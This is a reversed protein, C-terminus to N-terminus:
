NPAFIYQSSNSPNQYVCLNNYTTTAGIGSISNPMFSNSALTTGCNYSPCSITSGTTIQTDGVLNSFTTSVCSLTISTPGYAVTTPPSWTCVVPTAYPCGCM